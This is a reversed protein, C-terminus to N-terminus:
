FPQLGNGNGIYLMAVTCWQWQVHVNMPVQGSALSKAMVVWLVSLLATVVPSSALTNWGTGGNVSCQPSRRVGAGHM